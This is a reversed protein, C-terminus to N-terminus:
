ACAVALRLAGVLYDTVGRDAVTLRFGHDPYERGIVGAGRLM